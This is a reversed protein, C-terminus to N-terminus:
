AIMGLAQMEIFSVQPWTALREANAEYTRGSPAVFQVQNDVWGAFPGTSALGYYNVTKPAGHAQLAEVAILVATSPVYVVADDPRAMM